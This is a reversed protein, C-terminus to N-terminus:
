SVGPGVYLGLAFPHRLESRHLRVGESQLGFFTARRGGLVFVCAAIPGHGLGLNVVEDVLSDGCVGEAKLEGLPEAV